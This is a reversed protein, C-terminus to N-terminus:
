SYSVLTLTIGGLAYMLHLTAVEFLGKPRSRREHMDQLTRSHMIPFILSVYEIYARFLKEIVPESFSAVDQTDEDESSQVLRATSADRDSGLVTREQHNSILSRDIHLVPELVRAITINSTGGLYNYGSANLSLDRITSSLSSEPPLDNLRYTEQSVRPDAAREARRLKNELEAVKSELAKVYARQETPKPVTSAVYRCKESVRSCKQKRSKCRQCALTTRPRKAARVSTPSSRTSRSGLDEDAGDM